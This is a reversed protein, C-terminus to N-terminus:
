TSRATKRVADVTPFRARGARDYLTDAAAFIRDLTDTALEM